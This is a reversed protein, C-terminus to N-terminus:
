ESATAIEVTRLGKDQKRQHHGQDPVDQATEYRRVFVGRKADLVHDDLVDHRV